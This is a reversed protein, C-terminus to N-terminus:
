VANTTSQMNGSQSIGNVVYWRVILARRHLNLKNMVTKVQMRVTGPTNGIRAAIEKTNLGEAILGAIELERPSLM